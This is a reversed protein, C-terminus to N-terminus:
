VVLIMNGTYTKKFKKQVSHSILAELFLACIHGSEVSSIKLACPLMAIILLLQILVEQQIISFAMPGM